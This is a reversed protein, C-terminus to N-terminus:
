QRKNLTMLANYVCNHLITLHTEAPLPAYWVMTTKNLLKSLNKADDEMQKGETGVAIYVRTGMAPTMDTKKALSLLSEDDWWLSPSVIIYNSFLSPKKILIETALLGGLSQGILTKSSTTKYTKEIYPQLEQEIFSIFRGSGGSTLILKKDAAIASPYTFDRKRDVNAIGVVISPPVAGIMTLFQVIGAIHIFDENASGDLLYIVAYTSDIAHADPMYINLIRKESLIVSSITYTTGVVFPVPAIDQSFAHSITLALALYTLITKM